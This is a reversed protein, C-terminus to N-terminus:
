QSTDGPCHMPPVGREYDLSYEKLAKVAKHWEEVNREVLQIHDCQPSLNGTEEHTLRTHTPPHYM